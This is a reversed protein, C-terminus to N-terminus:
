RVVRRRQTALAARRLQGAKNQALIKQPNKAYAARKGQRQCTRCGRGRKRHITNAESFEHGHICHTKKAHVATAGVGRLINQQHTVAELHEPNVCHRVRCLHDLVLEEPILGVVLQYMARHARIKKGFSIIEGYGNDNIWGTWLWCGEANRSVKALLRDLTLPQPKRGKGGM